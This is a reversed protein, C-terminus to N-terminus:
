DIKNSELRRVHAQRHQTFKQQWFTRSLLQLKHKVQVMLYNRKAKTRENTGGM